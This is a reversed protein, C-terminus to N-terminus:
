FHGDVGEIRYKLLGLPAKVEVVDGPRRNLLAKGVLSEVSIKGSAGDGEKPDVLVYVEQRQDQLDRLTVNSGIRCRGTNTAASAGDLIQASRLTEELERIRAENHSQKDRAADLPANERFDKDAMARKIDDAIVLRETQLRELDGQARKHGEASLRAGEGSIRKAQRQRVPARKVKLHNALNAPRKLGGAIETTLGADYAYRLFSKISQLRSLTDVGCNQGFTEVEWAKLTGMPKETGFWRVFKQLMQQASAADKQPNMTLFQFVADGLYVAEREVM